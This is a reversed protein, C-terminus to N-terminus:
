LKIQYSLSPIFPLVTFQKSEFVQTEENEIIAVFLANKRNYANYLDLSISHRAHPKVWTAKIGLDLRHYDPLRFGNRDGFELVVVPQFVPSSGPFLFKSEALTIPNGSAYSWSASARIVKSVRFGVTTHVNHRRDFRFPFQRGFNLNEFSRVAKSLAYSMQVGTRASHFAGLLEMGMSRGTGQTVKNEWNAADVISAEVAGEELLFSAGEQYETLNDLYKYYVEGAVRFHEDIVWHLGTSLQYSKQPQVSKTTPVWLDTPLGFGSSSLLHLYQVMLSANSQWQLGEAVTVDLHLRPQPQVYWRGQVQFSSLHIGLNARTRDTLRIEDEVYFGHEWARVSLDSFLADDLTGEDVVFDQVQAQDTFAISKPRFTHHTSYWGLRLRNATGAAIDFDWKFAIDEIESKFERSEFGTVEIRPNFTTQNFEYLDLSRLKFKSWTLTANAFVNAKFQRNWRAIGIRNSWKLRKDFREFFSSGDLPTLRETIDQYVDNGNYYSLYIRDKTSLQYNLKANFDDFGFQTSGGLGQRMKDDRALDRLVFGPVFTRASIVFSGKEKIIPGELLGHMSLPGVGGTFSWNHRNGERTRVDLVSSLRGAFRAPFMGKHISAEQILMPNFISLVGIAHTPNYVPVGDMLVLNQDDGGGRINIGGIGDTGTTVGPLSTAFRQLDFEGGLHGGHEIRDWNIHPSSLESPNVERSENSYIVVEDLTLSKDLRVIYSESEHADMTIHDTAYGLYSVRVDGTADPLVMSFFGYPNTSAGVGSQTDYVHAAILREGTEKDEVFGNVVYGGARKRYKYLIVQGEKERIDLGTGDLVTALVTEASGSMVLSILRDDITSSSFVINIGTMESLSILAESLSVNDFAVDIKVESFSQASVDASQALPSLLIFCVLYKYLTRM